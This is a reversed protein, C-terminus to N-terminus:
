PRWERRVRVMERQCQRATDWERRALADRHARRLAALSDRFGARQADTLRPRIDGALWADSVVHQRGTPATPAVPVGEAHLARM